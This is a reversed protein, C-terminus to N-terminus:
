PRWRYTLLPGVIEAGCGVFRPDEGDCVAPGVLADPERDLMAVLPALWQPDVTCHADLFVIVPQQAARAGLNRAAAIGVHDQRVVRIWPPWTRACCGDTSGDDVVLIERPRVTASQVSVVTEAVSDGEEFASLVVSVPAFCTM